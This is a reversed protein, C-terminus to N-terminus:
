RVEGLLENIPDEAKWSLLCFAELVAGCGYSPEVMGVPCLVVQQAVCLKAM